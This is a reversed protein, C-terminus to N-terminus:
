ENYQSNAVVEAGPRKSAVESGGIPLFYFKGSAHGAKTVKNLEPIQDIEQARAAEYVRERVAQFLTHTTLLEINSSLVDFLHMRSCRAAMTVKTPCPTDGGSAISLRSRHPFSHDVWWQSGYIAPDAAQSARTGFDAGLLGAYCSDAVILVRKAKTTAMVRTIQETPIWLSADPPRNANTPLWYGFEAKDSPIRSGHGSYYILLNDNEGIAGGLDQLATMVTMGNANTVLQVTFGYKSQLIDAVRGADTVPTPLDDMLDYDENGIVLAFYRGFNKGDAALEPRDNIIPRLDPPPEPPPLSQLEGQSQSRESQLRAVWNRLEDLERQADASPQPQSRLADIQRELLRIQSDKEDIQSTLRTRLEALEREVESRYVLDDEALGWSKRYWNLAELRNQEVGLGREYLLGLNLQAASYGQTAAKEYWTAAAEYNPEGGM